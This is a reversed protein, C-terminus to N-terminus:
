ELRKIKDRLMTSTIDYKKEVYVVKVGCQALKTEYGIWSDTGKWEEGVFLVDFHYKLYADFKDLSTQKVVEDVYKIAGVILEREEYPIIPSKGKYSQVLEDTSVAVILYDCGQKAEKLINLHGAHFMDFVGATYGIIHINDTMM